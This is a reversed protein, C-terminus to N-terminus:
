LSCNPEIHKQYKLTLMNIGFTTDIEVSSDQQTLQVPLCQSASASRPGSTAQLQKTLGCNTHCSGADCPWQM